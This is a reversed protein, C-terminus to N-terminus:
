TEQIRRLIKTLKLLTQIRREFEEVKELLGKHAMELAGRVGVLDLYTDINENEKMKGRQDM